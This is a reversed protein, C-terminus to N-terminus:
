ERDETDILAGNEAEGITCGLAEPDATRVGTEVVTYSHISGGGKVAIPDFYATCTTVLLSALFNM